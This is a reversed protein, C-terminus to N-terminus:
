DPKCAEARHRAGKAAVDSVFRFWSQASQSDVCRLVDHILLESKTTIAESLVESLFMSTDSRGSNALAVGFSIVAFRRDKATVKKM